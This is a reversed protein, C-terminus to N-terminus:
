EENETTESPSQKMLEKKLEDIRDIALLLIKQNATNLILANYTRMGGVPVTSKAIGLIESRAIDFPIGERYPSPTSLGSIRDSTVVCYSKTTASMVKFSRYTCFLLYLVIATCGLTAFNLQFGGNRLVIMTLLGIIIPLSIAYFWFTIRSQTLENKNCNYREEM